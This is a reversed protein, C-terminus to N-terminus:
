MEEAPLSPGFNGVSLRVLEGSEQSASVVIETEARSYRIANDILNDLLICFTNPDVKVLVDSAIPAEIRITLM